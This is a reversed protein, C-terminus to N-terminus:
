ESPAPLTTTKEEPALLLKQEPAPRALKQEPAPLALKEEPAPLALKGDSQADHPTMITRVAHKGAHSAAKQAIKKVGLQNLNYATTIVDGTVRMGEKTVQAAQAGYKTEVLGVTVSSTESLLLKGAQELAEWVNVAAKLSTKGVQKAATATPGEVSVKKGTGTTTKSIGKAITKGIEDALSAVSSILVKSVAVCVPSLKGAVYVTNVVSGPVVAPEPNPTINRKFYDGGTRATAAIYHSGTTIGEVLYEAGTNIGASLTNLAKAALPASSEPSAVIIENSTSMTTTVEQQPESTPMPHFGPPLDVKRLM